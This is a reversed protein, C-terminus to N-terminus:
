FELTLGFCILKLFRLSVKGLFYAVVKMLFGSYITLGDIYYKGLVALGICYGCPIDILTFM